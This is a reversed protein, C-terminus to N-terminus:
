VRLSQLASLQNTRTKKEDGLQSWAEARLQHLLTLRPDSQAYITDLDELLNLALRPRQNDLLLQALAFPNDISAETLDGLKAINGSQLTNVIRDYAQLQFLDPLEQSQSYGPLCLLTFLLAWISYRSYSRQSRRRFIRLQM